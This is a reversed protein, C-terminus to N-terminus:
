SNVNASGAVAEYVMHSTHTRGLQDKGVYAILSKAMEANLEAGDRMGRWSPGPDPSMAFLFVYVDRLGPTGDIRFGLRKKAGAFEPNVLLAIAPPATESEEVDDYEDPDRALPKSFLSSVARIADGERSFHVTAHDIDRQVHVLIAHAQGQLVADAVDGGSVEVAIGYRQGLQGSASPVDRLGDTQDGLSSRYNDERALQELFEEPVFRGPTVPLKDLWDRAEKLGRYLGYGVGMLKIRFQIPSSFLDLPALGNPFQFYKAVVEAEAPLLEQDKQLRSVKAPNKNLAKALDQCQIGRINCVHFLQELNVATFPRPRDLDRDRRM